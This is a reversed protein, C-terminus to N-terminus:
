VYRGCCSVSWTVDEASVTISNAGPKVYLDDASGGTRKDMVRVFYSEGTYKRIFLTGDNEHGIVLREGDALGLSSFTMSSSGIQVTLSDITEGSGNTLEADCVTEVVGPVTISAGTSTTATADQWFPVADARFTITFEETWNFLDGSSPLEVSDVWLRKGTMYNVTLWGKDLAWKIVKDFVERRDALQQKPIDIAFTVSAEITDWHRGTIRRGSGGMRNVNQVTEKTTGPDIGRIVISADVQDLQNGGLAARRALIM